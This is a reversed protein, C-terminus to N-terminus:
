YIAKEETTYHLRKSLVYTLNQQTSSFFQVVNQTWMGTSVSTYQYPNITNSKKLTKKDTLGMNHKEKNYNQLNEM